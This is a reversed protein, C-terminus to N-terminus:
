LCGASTSTLIAAAYQGTAPNFILIGNNAPSPYQYSYSGSCVYKVQSVAQWGVPLNSAGIFAPPPTLNPLTQNNWDIQAATLPSPTGTSGVSSAAAGTWGSGTSDTVNGIGCGMGPINLGCLSGADAVRAGGSGFALALLALLVVITNM